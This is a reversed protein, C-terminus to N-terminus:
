RPSDVARRVVDKIKKPWLSRGTASKALWQPRVPFYLAKLSGESDSGLWFGSSSCIWRTVVASEVPGAYLGEDAALRKPFRNEYEIVVGREPEHDLALRVAVPEVCTPIDFPLPARDWERSNIRAAFGAIRCDGIEIEIEFEDVLIAGLGESPPIYSDLAANYVQYWGKAGPLPTLTLSWVRPDTKGPVVIPWPSYRKSNM